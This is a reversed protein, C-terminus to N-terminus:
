AAALRAQVPALRWAAAVVLAFALAHLAALAPTRGLPDGLVVLAGAISGVNTAATMLAIVALPRDSQLGRQFAFFAAATLALAAPLWPSLPTGAATVAKLALDAAGYLLGGAVGLALPRRPGRARAALLAAALEMEAQRGALAPASYASPVRAEHLGASLLALAAAMLAVAQLEAGSLRRRLGIAAMPAALALGGAVFAQVLSLPAESMAALHLAWGALGAIAGLTWLPSRLLTALTALPRRVDVPRLTAAGAHQMLFSGNLAVAAGVALLLGIATSSV